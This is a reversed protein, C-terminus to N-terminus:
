VTVSTANFLSFRLDKKGDININDDLIEINIKSQNTETWNGSFMSGFYPSQFILWMYFTKLSRVRQLYFIWTLICILGWERRNKRKKIKSELLKNVNVISSILLNCWYLDKIKESFPFIDVVDLSIESEVVKRKLLLSVYLSTHPPMQIKSM